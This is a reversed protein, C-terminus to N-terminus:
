AAIKQEITKASGGALVQQAIWHVLNAWLRRQVERRAEGITVHRGWGHSLRHREEDLFVFATLALFWFRQIATASLVQYHDVGPEEKVDAFFVEITWRTAIHEVLTAVDADLDSSAWFRIDKLPADKREKILIVQCQYLSKVQTTVVHVWVTRQKGQQTPWVVEQYDQSTLKAAYNTLNQWRWGTRAKDDTVRLLRNRKLGSTILFGRDRAAKWVRKCTFWSDLLVHTVTNPLPDFNTIRQVMLDVKSFFPVGEADCVVKQRDMQPALPCVNGLVVYLTQLLSHGTIPKGHTSSYHAGIGGMKKGRPKDMTSDDGILYGTVVTKKPRGRRKPRQARQRAHDAEIEPALRDDFRDRWTDALDTANWPAYTLFRSLSAVSAADAIQQHLGTLTRRVECVMWAVLMTVFHQYQPISFCSRFAAAFKRLQTDACIMPLRM